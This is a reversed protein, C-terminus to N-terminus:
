RDHHIVSEEWRNEKQGKDSTELSFLQCVSRSSASFCGLFHNAKKPNNKDNKLKMKKFFFLRDLMEHGFPYSFCLCSPTQRQATVIIDIIYRYVHIYVIINM